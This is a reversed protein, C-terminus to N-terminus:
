RPILTMVRYTRIRGTKDRVRLPTETPPTSRYEVSDSSMRFPAEPRREGGLFERVAADFVPDNLRLKSCVAARVQYIPVFVDGQPHRTRTLEFATQLEDIVRDGWEGVTRRTITTLRGQSDEELDATAWIRLAPPAPVHYSFNAVGLQKTWRRLIELTIYDLRVGACRFAFSVLAEECAGVFDRSRLYRDPRQRRDDADQREKIYARIAQDIEREDARWGTVGAEVARAARAALFRVYAERGEPGMHRERHVEGWNATPVTFIGARLLRLFGALQPHTVWLMRFLEDYAGRRDARLQDVWARGDPTLQFTRPAYIPAAKRTTPLQAQQVFGLRMLEALADTANSMYRHEDHRALRLAAHNGSPQTKERDAAMHEILARRIQDYNGDADVKEAAVALFEIEQLRPVGASRARPSM